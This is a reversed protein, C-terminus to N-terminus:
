EDTVEEDRDRPTGLAVLGRAELAAGLPEFIRERLTPTLAFAKTRGGLFSRSEGRVWVRVFGGGLPVLEVSATTRSFFGTAIERPVTAVVAPDDSPAPTWGAEVVSARLRATLSTDGEAATATPRARVEFDRYPPTLRPACASLTVLWLGASALAVLTSRSSPRGAVRSSPSALSVPPM